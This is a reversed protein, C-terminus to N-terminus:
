IRNLLVYLEFSYIKAINTFEVTEVLNSMIPREMRIDSICLFYEANVTNVM